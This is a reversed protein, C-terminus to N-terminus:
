VLDQGHKPVDLLLGPFHVLSTMHQPQFPRFIEQGAQLFAPHKLIEMIFPSTQNM